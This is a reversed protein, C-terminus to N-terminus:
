VWRRRGIILLTLVSYGMIGLMMVSTIWLALTIWGKPLIGEPM